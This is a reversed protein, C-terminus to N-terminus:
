RRNRHRSRYDALAFWQILGFDIGYPEEPMWGQSSQLDPPALVPLSYILAKRKLLRLYEGNEPGPQLSIEAPEQNNAGQNVESNHQEASEALEGVLKRNKRERERRAKAQYEAYFNPDLRKQKWEEAIMKLFDTQRMNSCGDKRKAWEESRYVFFANPTRTCKPLNPKTPVLPGQPGRKPRRARTGVRPM